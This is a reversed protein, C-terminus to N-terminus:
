RRSKLFALLCAELPDVGRGPIWNTVGGVKQPMRVHVVYVPGCREMVDAVRLFPHWPDFSDVDVAGDAIAAAHRLQEGTLDDPHM